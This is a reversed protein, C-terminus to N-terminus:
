MTNQSFEDMQYSHTKEYFVFKKELGKIHEKTASDMSENYNM